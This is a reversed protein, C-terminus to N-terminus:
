PPSMNPGSEQALPLRCTYCRGASAFALSQGRALRIAHFYHICRTTAIPESARLDGLCVGCSLTVDM